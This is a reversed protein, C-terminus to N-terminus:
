THAWQPHMRFKYVYVLQPHMGLSSLPPADRVTPILGNLTCGWVTWWLLVGLPVWLARRQLPELGKGLGIGLRRGFGSGLRM